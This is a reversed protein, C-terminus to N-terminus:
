TDTVTRLASVLTPPRTRGVRERRTAERRTLALDAEREAARSWRAIFGAEQHLQSFLILSRTTPAALVAADLFVPRRSSTSTM